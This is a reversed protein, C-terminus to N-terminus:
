MKMKSLLEDYEKKLRIFSDKDGNANDTHFVKALQKYRATLEEKTDCGNFYVSRVGRSRKQTSGEKERKDDTKNEDTQSNDTSSETDATSEESVNKEGNDEFFDYEYDIKGDLPDFVDMLRPYIRLMDNYEFFTMKEAPIRKLQNFRKYDKGLSLSDMILKKEKSSVSAIVGELDRMMNMYHERALTLENALERYRENRKEDRRRDLIIWITAAVLSLVIQIIWRLVVHINIYDVWIFRFLWDLTICMAFGMLIGSIFGTTSNGMDRVRAINRRKAAWLTYFTMCILVITIAMAGFLSINKINLLRFISEGVLACSLMILGTNTKHYRTILGTIIESIVLIVIMIVVWPWEKHKNVFEENAFYVAIVLAVTCVYASIRFTNYLEAIAIYVAIIILIAAVLVINQNM